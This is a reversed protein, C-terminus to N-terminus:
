IKIICCVLEHRTLISHNRGALGSCEWSHSLSTLISRFPEAQHCQSEFPNYLQGGFLFVKKGEDNEGGSNEWLM